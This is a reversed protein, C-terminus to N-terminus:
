KEPLRELSDLLRTGIRSVGVRQPEVFQEPVIMGEGVGVSLALVSSAGSVGM